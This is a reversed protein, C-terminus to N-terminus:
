RAYADFPNTQTLLRITEESVGRKRLAPLISASLVTFPMQEGGAPKAPDFWGADHSLLMQQELGADLARLVLDVFESDTIWGANDYEILAGRAAM